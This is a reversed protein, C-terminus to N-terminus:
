EGKFAPARKEVFARMGEERDRTDFLRYFERREALLGAEMDRGPASRVARKAARVALPARQAVERALKKAEDLFVEPAFVRSVLGAALAERASLRRGTLCLDMALAKGVTKALRQTGGAGPILGILVEPQGFQATESAVILDCAMALECGGGLAFGSVAAIVPKKLEAIRDWRGLHEALAAEAARSDPLDQMERIDAGAAFARESGTVLMVGVAPDEDFGELASLLAAMVGRSLANLAQPRSLIAIGVPGDSEIRVEPEASM